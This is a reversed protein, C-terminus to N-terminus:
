VVPSQRWLWVDSDKVSVGRRAKDMILRPVCNSLVKWRLVTSVPPKHERSRFHMNLNLPSFTWKEKERGRVKEKVRGPSLSNELDGAAHFTGPWWWHLKHLPSFSFPGLLLAVGYILSLRLWQVMSSDIDLPPSLSPSLSSSPAATSCSTQHFNM